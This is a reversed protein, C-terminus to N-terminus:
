RRIEQRPVAAGQVTLKADRCFISALHPMGDAATKHEDTAQARSPKPLGQAPRSAQEPPPGAAATDGLGNHNKERGFGM